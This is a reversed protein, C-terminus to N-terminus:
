FRNTVAQKTGHWCFVQSHQNYKEHPQVLLILQSFNIYKIGVEDKYSKRELIPEM